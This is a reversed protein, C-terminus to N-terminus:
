RSRITNRGSEKADYLAVDARKILSDRDDGDIYQSVGFSATIKHIGKMDIKEIKKRLNEALLEAKELNTEPLLLIFEEGGWRAFVDSKRVNDYVTKSLRKLVEDGKLHGYRDNFTKFHDIDLLILSFNAEYRIAKEFEERLVDLFFARNFISTLIDHTANYYHKQSELKLATIDTLTVVYNTEDSSLKNLQVTFAKPEVSKLEVISVVRDKQSLNLIESIWNKDELPSYFNKHSIFTDPLSHFEKEFEELSEVEFFDYFKRNASIINDGDTVLVINNQQDMVGQLIGLERTLEESRKNANILANEFESIDRLIILITEKNKVFHYSCVMEFHLGRINIKVKQSKSEEKVNHYIEEWVDTKLLEHVSQDIHNGFNSISRENMWQIVQEDNDEVIELVSEGIYNLTKKVNKLKVELFEGYNGKINKAIDRITIISKPKKNQDQILVRRIHKNDMLHVVDKVKDYENVCIVPKSMIEDVCIDLDAKQNILFLADRETLIGVSKKNKDEVVISGIDNENMVNFAEKVSTKSDVSIIVKPTEIFHSIMLNTQYSDDELHKILMDQTIVGIFTNKDDVVVLRRINNDILLHLAYEVTRRSNVTILTKLNLITSVKAKADMKSNINYLIDRETLIGMPISNSVIVVVGQENKCMTYIANEVSDELDVAIDDNLVINKVLLM